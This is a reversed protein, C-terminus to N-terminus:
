AAGDPDILTVRSNLLKALRDAEDDLAQDATLSPNQSLLEAILQAQSVLRAEIAAREDGRRQLAIIVTVLVLAAAAVGLSTLFIKSRFGLNM